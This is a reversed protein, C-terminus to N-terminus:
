SATARTCYGIPGTQPIAPDLSRWIEILPYEYINAVRSDYGFSCTRVNGEYGIVTSTRGCSCTPLLVITLDNFEKEWALVRQRVKETAGPDLPKFPATSGNMGTKKFLSVYCEQLGMQRMFYPLSDLEFYNDSHLTFVIARRSIGAQEANRLAQVAKEFRGEGRSMDHTLTTLGDFSIEILNLDAKALSQARALTLQQGNSIIKVFVGAQRLYAIIQELDHRLLSEGGLLCVYFIGADIIQQAITLAQETEPGRSKFHPLYCIKCRLDCITNVEWLCYWPIAAHVLQSQVQPALFEKTMREKSELYSAIGAIPKLFELDILRKLFSIVEDCGFVRIVERRIEAISFSQVVGQWILSGYPSLALLPNNPTMSRTGYLICLDPSEAYWRLYQPEVEPVLNDFASTVLSFTQENTPLIFENDVLNQGIQDWMEPAVQEPWKTWLEAQASNLPLARGNKQNLLTFGLNGMQRVVLVDASKTWTLSSM